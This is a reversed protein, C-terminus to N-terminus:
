GFRNEQHVRFKLPLAVLGHGGPKREALLGLSLKAFKGPSNAILEQICDVAQKVLRETGAWTIAHLLQALGLTQPAEISHM